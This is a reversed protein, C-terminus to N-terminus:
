GRGQRALERQYALMRAMKQARVPDREVKSAIQSRVHRAFPHEAGMMSASAREGDAALCCGGGSMATREGRACQSLERTLKKLTPDTFDKAVRSLLGRREAIELARLAELAPLLYAPMAASAPGGFLAQAITRSTALARGAKSLEGNGMGPLPRSPNVGSMDADDNDDRKRKREKRAAARAKMQRDILKAVEPGWKAAALALPIWGVSSESRRSGGESTGRVTVGEGSTSTNLKLDCRWVGDPLKYINVHLGPKAM